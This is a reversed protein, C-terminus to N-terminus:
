REVVTLNQDTLTGQKSLREVFPQQYREGNLEYRVVGDFWGADHSRDIGFLPDLPSKEYGSGHEDTIATGYDSIVCGGSQVFDIIASCETQSLAFTQPLVLVKVGAQDLRGALLEAPDIIRAQHGLDELLRLWAVRNKGSSLSSNDLSSSRRPWTKGHASADIAWGVQVSPPSYLVAIPSFIPETDPHALVNLEPAQVQAFTDALREVRRDINGNDFWASGGIDPWAIVSRCGHALYYWLFWQDARLDGTLFYTQM